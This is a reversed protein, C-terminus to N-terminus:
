KEDGDWLLDQPCEVKLTQGRLELAVRVPATARDLLSPMSVTKQELELCGADLRSLTLLRELLWQMRELQATLQGTFEQRKELPLDPRALLDAM